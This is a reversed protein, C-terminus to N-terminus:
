FLVFELKSVQITFRKNKDSDSSWFLLEKDRDDDEYVQYFNDCKYLSCAKEAIRFAQRKAKGYTLCIWEDCIFPHDNGRVGVLSVVYLAIM